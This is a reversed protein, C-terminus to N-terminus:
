RKLRLNYYAFKIFVSPGCRLVFRLLINVVLKIKSIGLKRSIQILLRTETLFYNFGKRRTLFNKGRRVDVVVENCKFIKYDNIWFRFFLEWDEVYKYDRYGKLNLFDIKKFIVTVHNLPNRLWCTKDNNDFNSLRILGLDKINSDFEEIAFTFLSIDPYSKVLKKSILFRKKRSIDDADMVAFYDYKVKQVAINRSIGLGKYQKSFSYEFYYGTLKKNIEKFKFFDIPGDISIIIQDEIEVTCKISDLAKIFFSWNDNETVSIIVSIKM